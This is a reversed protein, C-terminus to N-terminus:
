ERNFGQQRLANFFKTLYLSRESNECAVTRQPERASAQLTLVVFDDKDSEWKVVVFAGPKSFLALQTEEGAQEASATCLDSISGDVLGATVTWLVHAIRGFEARSLRQTHVRHAMETLADVTKRELEQKIDPLEM